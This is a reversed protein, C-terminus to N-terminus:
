HKSIATEWKQILFFPYSSCKVFLLRFVLFFIMSKFSMKAYKKKAESRIQLVSLPRTYGQVRMTNYEGNSVFGSVSNVM